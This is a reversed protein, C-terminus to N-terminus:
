CPLSIFISMAILSLVYIIMLVSSAEIAMRAEMIVRIIVVVGKVEEIQKLMTHIGSSLMLWGMDRWVRVFHMFHQSGWVVSFLWEAEEVHEDLSHCRVTFALRGVMERVSM